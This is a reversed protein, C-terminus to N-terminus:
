HSSMFCLHTFDFCARFFSPHFTFVHRFVDNMCYFQKVRKKLTEHTALIKKLPDENPNVFFNNDRYGKDNLAKKDIEFRDIFADRALRLDPWKGCPYGGHAKVINGTASSLWELKM